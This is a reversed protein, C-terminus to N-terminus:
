DAKAKQWVGRAQAMGAATGQLRIFARLYAGHKGRADKKSIAFTAAVGIYLWPVLTAGAFLGRIVNANKKAWSRTASSTQQASTKVLNAVLKMM